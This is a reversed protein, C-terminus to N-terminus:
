SRARDTRLKRLPEADRGAPAGAHESHGVAVPDSAPFTADLAEDLSDERREIDASSDKGREVSRPRPPAPV